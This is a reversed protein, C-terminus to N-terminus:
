IIKLFLKWFVKFTRFDGGGRLFIENWDLKSFRVSAVFAPTPPKLKQAENRVGTPATRLYTPIAYFQNSNTNATLYLAGGAGAVRLSIAFGAFLQL